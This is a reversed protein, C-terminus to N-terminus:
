DLKRGCNPCYNHPTDYAPLERGFEDFVTRVSVIEHGEIGGCYWCPKSTTETKSIAVQSLAEIVAQKTESDMFSAMVCGKSINIAQEINM